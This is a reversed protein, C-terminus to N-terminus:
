DGHYPLTQLLCPTTLFTAEKGTAHAVWSGPSCEEANGMQSTKFRFLRKETYLEHIRAIVLMM